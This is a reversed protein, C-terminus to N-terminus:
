KASILIFNVLNTVGSNYPIEGTKIKADINECMEIINKLIVPSFSKTQEYLKKVAFEKIKLYSAIEEIPLKTVAVYFLRRFHNQILSLVSSSAKKDFMLDKFIKLAKEKNGKGLNETFEFINYELDKVVMEEVDKSTIIEDCYDILKSLEIDIRSLYGNCYDILKTIAEKEIQKKEKVKNVVWKSLLDNNLRSCDISTVPLKQPSFYDSGDLGVIILITSENVNKSYEKIKTLLNNAKKGEVEKLVVLKKGFFSYTNCLDVLKIGDIDETTLNVRDLNNEKLADIILNISNNKLFLDEGFLLYIPQINNKLNLKLEQFKM